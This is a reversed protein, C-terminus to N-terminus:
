APIGESADMLRSLTEYASASGTAVEIDSPMTRRRPRRRRATRERDERWRRLLTSGDGPFEVRAHSGAAALVFRRANGDPFRLEVNRNLPHVLLSVLEGILAAPVTYRNGEHRITGERGVHLPLETRVDFDTAPLSKLEPREREFRAARNEGLDVITKSSITDIWAGIEANLNSLSLERGEMRPWFNNDLYGITREVKGKTEPRRVRCRRPAFGYHAALALLRKTPQWVGEADPAFATRMNDYLIECPVGGFCDFALVHCALLTAQDMSTTFRVFPKRSYGLVMVFAYLKTLRGDVVQKGFEKWDVQAQRGPETEFRITAAKTVKRTVAAAYDRLISIRGQYGQKRLREILLERNLFPNDELVTDIFGKFEDLKSKRVREHRPEGHRRLYNRVTRDTVGLAEAM